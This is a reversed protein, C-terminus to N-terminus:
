NKDRMAEAFIQLDSLNVDSVAWYSMGARDWHVLNYGQRVDIKNKNGSEDASPWIFLNILHQRRQYVLAAVPRNGIYDLRGGVLQFGLSVLDTVPPSYDLKGDFWPKVTHQDSSQVDTLHTAMLSRVHSSVIEQALLDDRTPGIQTLVLVCLIIAILALTAMAPLWRWSLVRNRPENKSMARVALRVREQLKAPANFYLSSGSIASSLARHNLHDRACSQCDKLHEEIRLNNLLDLEGDIYGHMLNRMDQCIM